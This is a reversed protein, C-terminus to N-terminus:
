IRQCCSRLPWVSLFHPAEVAPMALQRNRGRAIGYEGFFRRHDIFETLLLSAANHRPHLPLISLGLSGYPTDQVLHSKTESQMPLFKRPLWIDNERFIFCYDENM